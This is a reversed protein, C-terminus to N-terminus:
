RYPSGRRKRRELEIFKSLGKMWAKVKKVLKESLEETKGSDELVNELVDISGQYFLSVKKWQLLM